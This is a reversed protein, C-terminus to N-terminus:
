CAGNRMAHRAKARINNGRLTISVKSQPTRGNVLWLLDRAALDYISANFEETFRRGRAISRSIDGATAGPSVGIAELLQLRTRPARVVWGV